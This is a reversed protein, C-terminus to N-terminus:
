FFKLFTESLCVIDFKNVFLRATLLSVNAFSHAVLSSLNWHYVSFNQSHCTNRKPRANIEINGSM